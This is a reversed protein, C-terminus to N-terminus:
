DTQEFLQFLREDRYVLVHGIGGSGDGDFLQVTHPRPGDDTVIYLLMAAQGNASVVRAAWNRGQWDFLYAMFTAYPERGRSWQPVPPMEFLVDDTVLAALATVDADVIAQAYREVAGPQLAASRGGGGVATRARQLASNVAPVTMELIEATEAASQGLVERLIFVGRQRPPLSQLMATVALRMEEAAVVEGEVESDTWWSTPAPMLWPVDLAPVLPAGIDLGPDRLDRPLARRPAARLRDICVNRAVRYTWTSLSARAPDYSDRARWAREMVDQVADEADFPSGLMQYCFALLGKRLGALDDSTM